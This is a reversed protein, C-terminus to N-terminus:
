QAQLIFRSLIGPFVDARDMQPSSLLPDTRWKEDAFHGNERVPCVVSQLVGRAPAFAFTGANWVPRNSVSSCEVTMPDDGITEHGSGPFSIQTRILGLHVHYLVTDCQFCPVIFFMKNSVVNMMM